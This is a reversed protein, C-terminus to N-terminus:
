DQEVRLTAWGDVAKVVARLATVGYLGGAADCPEWRAKGKRVVDPEDFTVMVVADGQGADLEFRAVRGDGCLFVPRQPGAQTYVYERRLEGM